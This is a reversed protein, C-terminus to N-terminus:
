LTCVYRWGSRIKQLIYHRVRIKQLVYHRVSDLFSNNVSITTSVLWTELLCFIFHIGFDTSNRQGFTNPTESLDPDQCSHITPINLLLVMTLLVTSKVYLPPGDKICSIFLLNSTLLTYEIGTKNLCLGLNHVTSM